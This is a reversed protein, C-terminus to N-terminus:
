LILLTISLEDHEENAPTCELVGLISLDKLAAQLDSVEYSLSSALENLVAMVTTNGPKVRNRLERYTRLLPPLGRAIAAAIAVALDDKKSKHTTRTMCIANVGLRLM